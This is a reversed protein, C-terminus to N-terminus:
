VNGGQQADVTASSGNSTNNYSKRGRETHCEPWLRQHESPVWNLTVKEPHSHPDDTQKHYAISHSKIEYSLLHLCKGTLSLEPVMIADTWCWCSETYLDCM